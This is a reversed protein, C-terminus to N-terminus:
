CGELLWCRVEDIRPEEEPTNSLRYVVQNLQPVARVLHQYVLREHLTGDLRVVVAPMHPRIHTHPEKVPCDLGVFVGMVGPTELMRGAFTHVFLQFLKQQEAFTGGRTESVAHTEGMVHTELLKPAEVSGSFPQMKVPTGSDFLDNLLGSSKMLNQAHAQSFSVAVVLMAISIQNKM